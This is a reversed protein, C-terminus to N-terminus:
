GIQKGLMSTSVIPAPPPESAHISSAPESRLPGCDAPASGPGAAVAPAALARRVRVGVQDEASEPGCSIPPAIVSSRSAASAAILSLIASGSPRSARRAGVRDDLDRVGFMASATRSMEIRVRSRGARTRARRRRRRRGQVPGREGPLQRDRRHDDGGCGPMVDASPQRSTSTRCSRGRHEEALGIRRRRSTSASNPSSSTSARSRRVASPNGLIAHAQRRKMSM